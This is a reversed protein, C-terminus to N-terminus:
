RHGSGKVAIVIIFREDISKLYDAMEKAATTESSTNFGRTSTVRGNSPEIVVINHGYVGKCHETGNM